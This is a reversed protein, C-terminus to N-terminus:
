FIASLALLQVSFSPKERRLPVLYSVHPRYSVNDSLLWRKGLRLLLDNQQDELSRDGDTVLFRGDVFTDWMFNFTPGVGYTVLNVESATATASRYYYSVDGGVQIISNLSYLYGLSVGYPKDGENFRFYTTGVHALMEHKPRSRVESFKIAGHNTWVEEVATQDVAQAIFPLLILAFNIVLKM